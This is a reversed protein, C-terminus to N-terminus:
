RLVWKLYAIGTKRHAIARTVFAVGWGYVMDEMEDDRHKEGELKSQELAKIDKELKKIHQRIAEETKM